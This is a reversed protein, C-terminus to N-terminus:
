AARVTALFRSLEAGLTESQRSLESAAGYVQSAAAGTEEAAGAVGAISGTVEGTGSSAQAVNFVIERTATGQEEVAAAIATAVDSIERIRAASGGIASVAQGTAGQIQGIQVSIEDTARSTQNALEKVEAAVVAFGRGAEGARAAEITANLALLNTQGAITSILGVVDGIRSVAFSLEQVLAATRDSEAVANQALAASNSAQRGIEQVSNGLEEAAAAVAGVNASAQEAAAAVSTAQSATEGATATMGSATAQLETAAGGITGVVETITGEFARIVGDLMEARRVKGTQEAEQGARLREREIANDRFVLVARAMAGIEDAREAEPLAVDTRGEALVAMTRRLREMPRVISRIVLGSVLGLVLLIGLGVLGLRQIQGWITSKLDSIHIGTAVVMGWPKHLRFLGVKPTAESEGPRIWNYQVRGVGDRLVRPLVDAFFLFGDTDKMASLDRGVLEPKAHMLFIGKDDTVFLYGDEGHRMADIDALAAARASQPSMEGRESLKRYRDIVNVAAETMLGLRNIRQELMAEYQYHLAVGGLAALSLGALVVLAYLKRPLNLRFM